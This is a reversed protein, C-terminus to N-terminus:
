SSLGCSGAPYGVIIMAARSGETHNEIIFLLNSDQSFAIEGKDQYGVKQFKPTLDIRFNRREDEFIGRILYKHVKTRQKLTEFCHLAWGIDFGFM